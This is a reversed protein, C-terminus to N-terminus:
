SKYWESLFIVAELESIRKNLNTISDSMEKNAERLNDIIIQLENANTIIGAKANAEREEILFHEYARYLLTLEPIDHEGLYRVACRVIETIIQKESHYQPFKKLEEVFEKKASM